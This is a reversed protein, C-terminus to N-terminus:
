TCSLILIRYGCCNIINGTGVPQSLLAATGSGAAVDVDACGSYFCLMDRNGASPKKVRQTSSIHCQAIAGTERKM